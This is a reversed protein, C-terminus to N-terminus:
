ARLVACAVRVSRVLLVFRLAAFERPPFLWLAMELMTLSSFRFQFACQAYGGRITMLGSMVDVDFDNEPFRPLLWLSLFPFFEFFWIFL